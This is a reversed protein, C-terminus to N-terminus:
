RRAFSCGQVQKFWSNQWFLAAIAELERTYSNLFEFVPLGMATENSNAIRRDINHQQHQSDLWTHISGGFM